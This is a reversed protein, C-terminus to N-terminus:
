YLLFGDGRACAFLVVADVGCAFANVEAYGGVAHLITAVTFIAFHFIKRTYPTAVGRRLKLWGAISGAAVGVVVGATALALAVPLPPIPLPPM